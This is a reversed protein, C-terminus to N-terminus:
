IDKSKYGGVDVWEYISKETAGWELAKRGKVPNCYRCFPIPKALKKLIESENEAMYIDIYDAEAVEFNMNFYRNLKYIAAPRTCTFLKGDRLKICNNSEKCDLWSRKIDQRGTIDMNLCTMYKFDESAGYFEFYVSEEEAKKVIQAYNFQIPYKTVIIAIDNERCSQWFTEKCKPLLIGNTFISIQGVPFYNRAIKMCKEVDPHLLPEGGILYIRECVGSFLEGLRKFDREMVNTDIYEEEAICSFQTCCKCNLNCHETLNVEFQLKKLPELKKREKCHHDYILAEKTIALVIHEAPIGLTLLQNKMTQEHISSTLLYFADKHLAVADDVALVRADQQMIHSNDCIAVEIEEHGGGLTKYLYWGINTAGFVVVKRIERIMKYLDANTLDDCTKM